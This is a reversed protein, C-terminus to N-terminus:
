VLVGDFIVDAFVGLYFLVEDRLGVGDDLEDWAVFGLRFKEM